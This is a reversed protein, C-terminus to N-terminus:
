VRRNLKSQAKRARQLAIGERAAFQEFLAFFRERDQQTVVAASDATEIAYPYGGGVVCEARVIDVVAEVISEADAGAADGLMWRPFEIRSPPRDMSLRVYTFAVDTYFAGRGDRSLADDRACIFAPSRDGWHPLLRNLLAADTTSRAGPAGSYLDILNVLDRSFTTDVFAVLPVRLMRSQALLAMVGDVYPRARAPLMQGAFSIVFSGDFFCVPPTPVLIRGDAAHGNTPGPAAGNAVAQTPEAAVAAHKDMLALLTECELAFRRQNIYWAAFNGDGRGGGDGTGDAEAGELEDPTIVEFAVDKIYPIEHAHFNVYWGVQVAGVPLSYEKSPAIQSGDVALTPKGELVDLAWARAAAHNQWTPAFPICLRQARDLEATPRAGPWAIGRQALFEEVEAASHGLFGALREDVLRTQEQQRALYRQFAGRKSELANIIKTRHIM